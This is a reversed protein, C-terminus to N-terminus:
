FPIVNLAQGAEIELLRLPWLDHTFGGSVPYDGLFPIILILIGRPTPTSQTPSEADVISVM